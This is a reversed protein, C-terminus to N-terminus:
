LWIDMEYSNTLDCTLPDSVSQTITAQKCKHDTLFFVMSSRGVERRGGVFTFDKM